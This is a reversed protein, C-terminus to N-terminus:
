KSPDDNANKEDEEQNAEQRGRFATIRVPANAPPISREYADNLFRSVKFLPIQPRFVRQLDEDLYRSDVCM